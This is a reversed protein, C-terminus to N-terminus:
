AYALWLLAVEAVAQVGLLLYETATLSGVAVLNTVIGSEVNGEERSSLDDNIIYIKTRRTQPNPLPSRSRMAHLDDGWVARTYGTALSVAWYGGEDGGAFSDRPVVLAEGRALADALRLAADRGCPIQRLAGVGDDPRVLVLKPEGGRDLLASTSGIPVTEGGTMAVSQIAGIEHELAGGLVGYWLKRRAVAAIAQDNRAVGRVKDRRLDIQTEVIGPSKGDRHDMSLSFMLIRPSDLYFRAAPDDNLAPILDHDGIAVAPFNQMGILLLQGTLDVTKSAGPQGARPQGGSAAAPAAPAGPPRMEVADIARVVRKACKAYVAMDHRGGSFWINHIAAPDILGKADRRLPRLAKADRATSARWAAGARDVLVRRTIEKAGGPLTLEFEIFEAVLQASSAVPIPDAAGGLDAFGGGGGGRAPPPSTGDDFTVPKGYIVETTVALTPLRVRPDDDRGGGAMATVGFGGIGGRGASAPAHFLVAQRGVLETVPKTVDLVVESELKGGNLREVIVRITMRQHLDPPLVDTPKAPADSFSRGPEADAFATDLDIWKGGVTEAQLWVHAGGIEALIADRPPSATAPLTDGLAARLVGYDRRARAAIRTILERRQPSDNAASAVAGADPEFIRDFLAEARAASLRGTVFRTKFGKAKLLEALLLSRDVANAARAIYAGKAGRFAGSYSEFRVHDRVWRFAPEVGPGLEGTRLWPDYDLSDFRRTLEESKARLEEVSTPAALQPPTLPAIPARLENEAPIACASRDGPAGSAVSTWVILVLSAASHLIRNM